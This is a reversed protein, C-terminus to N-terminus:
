APIYTASFYIYRGNEWRDTTMPTSTGNQLFSGHSGNIHLLAAIDTGANDVWAGGSPAYSTGEVSACPFGYIELHGTLNSTDVRMAAGRVHMVGGVKAYHAYIIHSGIGTSGDKFTPSWSGTETVLSGEIDGNLSNVIHRNGLVDNHSKHGRIFTGSNPSASDGYLTYGHGSNGYTRFDTLMADKNGYVVASSDPELDIGSGPGGTAGNSNSFSGGRVVLRNSACISMGNRVSNDASCDDFVIDTPYAALNAANDGSISTVFGDVVANIARVNRFKLRACNDYIAVNYAGVPLSMSVTRNARNADLTFNQILGDRTNWFYFMGYGGVCPQNDIVKIVSNNGEVLYNAKGDFNLGWLCSSDIKYPYGTNEFVLEAGNVPMAAIAAIIGSTNNTVGDATTYDNVKIM